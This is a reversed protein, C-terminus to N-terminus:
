TYKETSWLKHDVLCFWKFFLKERELIHMNYSIITISYYHVFCLICYLVLIRYDLRNRSTFAMLGHSM